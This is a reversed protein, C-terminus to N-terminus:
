EKFYKSNLYLADPRTLYGNENSFNNYYRNEKSAVCFFQIESSLLHKVKELIDERNQQEHVNVKFLSGGGVIQQFEKFLSVQKSYEIQTEPRVLETTFFKMKKFFNDNEWNWRNILYSDFHPQCFVFNENKEQNIENIKSAITTLVKKAFLRSQEIRDIEVGCHYLIAENLGFFSIAKISESKFLDKSKEFLDQKFYNWAHFKKLNKEILNQKIDFLRFISIVTSDILDLFISDNQNSQVAIKPLNILIKDLIPTGHRDPHSEYNNRISILQNNLPDSNRNKYFLLNISSLNDINQGIISNQLNQSNLEISDYLILPNLHINSNFEESLLHSFVIQEFKNILSPDYNNLKSTQHSFDLTIQSKGASFSSNLQVLSKLLLYIFDETNEGNLKSILLPVIDTFRYLLVDESFFRKIEKLFDITEFVIKNLKNKSVQKKIDYNTKELLYPLSLQISLPRLAWTDIHLLSIQGCLYLDALDRPLINLLLFQESTENGLQKIFSNPDPFKQSNLLSRIEFPPLGLRTLKHRFDEYGKEVLIGNIVERILPTTLYDVKSHSLKLKVEDAITKALKEPMKAEIILYETIKTIDFPEFTYNSTRIKITKKEDNIIDGIDILKELIKEGLQTLIYGDETSSIYHSDKLINLHYSINATDDKSKQQARKINGFSISGGSDRLIKLIRLRIDQGFIQLYKGLNESNDM